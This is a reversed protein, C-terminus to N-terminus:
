HQVPVANTVEAALERDVQQEVSSVDALASNTGVDVARDVV